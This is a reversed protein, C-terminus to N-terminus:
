LVVAWFSPLAQPQYVCYQDAELVSRLGLSHLLQRACGVGMPVLTGWGRVQGLVCTDKRPSDFDFVLVYGLTVLCAWILLASIRLGRRDLCEVYVLAYLLVFMALTFFATGLVARHRSPDQTPCVRVSIGRSDLLTDSGGPFTM